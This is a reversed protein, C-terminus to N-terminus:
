FVSCPLSCQPHWCGCIAQWLVSPWDKAFGQIAFPAFVVVATLWRYFALSVPPILDNLGRAVIFNGSWLATAGLAVGYGALLSSTKEPM